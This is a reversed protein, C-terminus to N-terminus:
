YSNVEFSNERCRIVKELMSKKFSMLSLRDLTLREDLFASLFDLTSERMKLLYKEIKEEMTLVVVNDDPTVQDSDQVVPPKQIQTQLTLFSEKLYDNVADLTSVITDRSITCDLELINSELWNCNEVVPTIDNNKQKKIEMEHTSVTKCSVKLVPRRLVESYLKKLAFQFQFVLIQFHESTKFIYISKM